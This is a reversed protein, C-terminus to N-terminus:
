RGELREVSELAAVKAERLKGEMVEITQKQLGIKRDRDRGEEEAKELRREAEGRREELRRVEVDKERSQALRLSLEVEYGEKIKSLTDEKERKLIQELKNKKEELEKVMEAEKRRMKREAEQEMDAMKRHLGELEEEKKYVKEVAEKLEVKLRAVAEGQDVEARRLWDAKYNEVHQQAKEVALKCDVVAREGVARAEKEAKLAAEWKERIESELGKATRLGREMGKRDAEAAELAEESQQLRHKLEAVVVRLSDEFEARERKKEAEFERKLETGCTERAAEVAASIKRAHSRELETVQGGVASLQTELEGVSFRKAEEIKVLESAHEKQLAHRAAEVARLTRREADDPSLLTERLASERETLAARAAERERRLSDELATRTEGALQLETELSTLRNRLLATEAAQQKSQSETEAAQSAWDREVCTRRAEEDEIRRQLSLTLGPSLKHKKFVRSHM